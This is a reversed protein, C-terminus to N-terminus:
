FKLVKQVVRRGLCSMIELQMHLKRFCGDLPTRLFLKRFYAAFKCFVWASTRSWYLQLLKIPIVSRCPHEGTFKNRIKLVAKRLFVEPHISKCVSLTILLCFKWPIILANVWKSKCQTFITWIRLKKQDKYEWMRVSYSSINQVKVYETRILSFVPWFFNRIQVSKM